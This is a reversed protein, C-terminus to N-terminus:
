AKKHPHNQIKTEYDVKRLYQIHEKDYVIVQPRRSFLIHVRTKLVLEVRGVGWRKFFWTDKVKDGVQLDKITLKMIDKM